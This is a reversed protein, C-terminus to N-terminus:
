HVSAWIPCRQVPTTLEASNQSLDLQSLGESMCSRGPVTNLIRYPLRTLERVLWLPFAIDM